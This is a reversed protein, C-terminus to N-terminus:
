VDNSSVTRISIITERKEPCPMNLSGMFLIPAM